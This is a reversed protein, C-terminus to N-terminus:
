KVPMRHRPLNIEHEQPYPQRQTMSVDERLKQQTKFKWDKEHEYRPDPIFPMKAMKTVTITPFHYDVEVNGLLLYCGGGQFPYAALSATFHATDFLEGEADIWTGFYMAGMKTPVHKRSILYALM